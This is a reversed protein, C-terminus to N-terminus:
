RETKPPQEPASADRPSGTEDSFVGRDLLREWAGLWTGWDHGGRIAVVNCSPVLRSLILSAAVYRDETGYGLYLPPVGPVEPRYSRLWALLRREDDASGIAGPDWNLLGGARMVEAIVGRTGLFPALLIVGDISAGNERVYDLAGMGGLSIGMLWTRVVTRGAPAEIHRKILSSVCRELYHDMRADIIIADVALHRARLARVFGHEVLDQACDGAGPLMILRVRDARTGHAMDCIVNVPHESINVLM